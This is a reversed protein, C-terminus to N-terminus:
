RYLCVQPGCPLSPHPTLTGMFYDSHFTMEQLYPNPVQPSLLKLSVESPLSALFACLILLHIVEYEQHVALNLKSPIFPYHAVNVDEKM